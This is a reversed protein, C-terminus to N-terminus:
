RSIEDRFAARDAADAKRWWRRLEDLPSKERVLGAVKAAARVSKFEGQALRAAIEPHDRKLRAALYAAGRAKLTTNSDQDVRDDHKRDGGHKALPAVEQALRRATEARATGWTQNILEPAYNTVYRHTKELEFWFTFPRKIRAEFYSKFDAFVQNGELANPDEYLKDREMWGLAEYILPWTAEFDDAWKCLWLDLFAARAVRTNLKRFEHTIEILRPGYSFALNRGDGRKMQYPSRRM